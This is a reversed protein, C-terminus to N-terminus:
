SWRGAGRERDMKETIAQRTFWGYPVGRSLCHERFTIEDGLTDFQVEITMRDPKVGKVEETKYTNDM